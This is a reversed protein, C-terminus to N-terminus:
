KKKAPLTGNRWALLEELDEPRLQSVSGMIKTNLTMQAAAELVELKDFASLLSPGVTTIGHNKMVVVNADKLCEAVAIALEDTGMLIYPAYAIKLVVVFSEGTLNINIKEDMAAFSTATVPHAHVVAKIDPRAKYANLHMGTEISLNFNPTLNKGDLTVLGIQDATILGKDLSSPTIIIHRDDLRMSLNGGSCTTLKQAYLRRMFAALEEREALCLEYNM